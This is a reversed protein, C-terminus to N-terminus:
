SRRRSLNDKAWLPRQNSFHFCIKQQKPDTLDFTHCEKIHDIHWGTPGYNKWTMNPLWLSELHVKFQEATCGILEFTKEAKLSGKLVHGIRRRLNRKIKFVPEDRKSKEWDQKYERIKDKNEARYILDYAKKEDRHEKGYKIKEKRMKDLNRQYHKKRMASFAEENSERYERNITNCCTKCRAHWGTGKKPFLNM